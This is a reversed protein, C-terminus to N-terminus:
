HEHQDEGGERGLAVVELLGHAALFPVMDRYAAEIKRLRENEAEAVELTARLSGVASLLDPLANRAATTLNIDAQKAWIDNNSNCVWGGELIPGGDADAQQIWWDGSEAFEQWPAPTAAEHM